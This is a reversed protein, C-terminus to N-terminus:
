MMPPRAFANAGQQLLPSSYPIQRASKLPLQPRQFFLKTEIDKKNCFDQFYM